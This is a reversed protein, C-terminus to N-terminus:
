GSLALGTALMVGGLLTLLGTGQLAAILAPGRGGGLVIRGPPVALPAAVLGLLAWPRVLGIVIMAGFAVVLLSIYGVRTARDGVVVALTRKGAATDGPIDRLNNVVLIAVILLGPPVAAAFALPEVSRTQVFTTGVVAVLGFFLFVFVEGLARYGYPLPGGTYTWAAAICVAGVALLWWSSMAALVLGAVGAVAFAILTAALVQRPTAAGSGVLRMPGVRDADTGRVGDSYDNAFNVAVQLALAVVLALLAPVLRFGDLAAAAGTGVFVPAVAAPLTRVRAGAVWQAPTAM